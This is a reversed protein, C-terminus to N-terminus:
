AAAKGTLTFTYIRAGTLPHFWEDAMISLYVDSAAIEYKEGGVELIWKV